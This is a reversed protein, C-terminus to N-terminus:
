FSRIKRPIKYNRRSSVEYKVNYKIAEAAYVNTKKYIIRQRKPIIKQKRTAPVDRRHGVPNRSRIKCVKQVYPDEFTEYKLQYEIAEQM